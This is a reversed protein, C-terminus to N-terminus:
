VLLNNIDRWQVRGYCRVKRWGDNRELRVTRRDWGDDWFALDMNCRKNRRMRGWFWTSISFPASTQFLLRFLVFPQSSSFWSFLAGAQKPYIVLKVGWIHPSEHYVVVLIEISCGTNWPFTPGLLLQLSGPGLPGLESWRKRPSIVRTFGVIFILGNKQLNCSWTYSSRNPAWRPLHNLFHWSNEWFFLAAKQNLKFTFM